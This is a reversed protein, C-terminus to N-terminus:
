KSKIYARIFSKLRAFKARQNEPVYKNILAKDLLRPNGKQVLELFHVFHQTNVVWPHMDIKRLAAQMFQTSNLKHKLKELSTNLLQLAMAYNNIKSIFIQKIWSDFLKQDNFNFEHM